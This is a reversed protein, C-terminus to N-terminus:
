IILKVQETKTALKRRHDKRRTGTVGMMGIVRARRRGRELIVNM